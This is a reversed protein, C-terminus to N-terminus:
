GFINSIQKFKSDVNIMKRVELKRMGVESKQWRVATKQDRIFGMLGSTEKGNLRVAEAAPPPM